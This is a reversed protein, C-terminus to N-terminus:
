HPAWPFLTVPLSSPSCRTFPLVINRRGNRQIEKDVSPEFAHVVVSRQDARVPVRVITTDLDLSDFKRLRQRARQFLPLLFSPTWCASAASSACDVQLLACTKM